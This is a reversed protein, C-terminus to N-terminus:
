TVIPITSWFNWHRAATRVSDYLRCLLDIPFSLKPPTLVGYGQISQSFFKVCTIIYTVHRLVGFKMFNPPVPAQRCYPSIYVECVKKIIIIIASFAIINEGTDAEKHTQKDTLLIVGETPTHAFTGQVAVSNFRPIWANMKWYDNDFPRLWNYDPSLSQRHRPQQVSTM